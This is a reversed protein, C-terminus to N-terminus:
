SNSAGRGEDAGHLGAAAGELRAALRRARASTRLSEEYLAGIELCIRDWDNPLLLSRIADVGLHKTRGGVCAMALGRRSNLFALLYYATERYHSRAVIFTSAPIIEVNNQLMKQISPPQGEELYMFARPNSGTRPILIDGEMLPPMSVGVNRSVMRLHDTSCIVGDCFDSPGVLARAGDKPVRDRESVRSLNLGIHLDLHDGLCDGDGKFVGLNKIASRDLRGGAEILDANALVELQESTATGGTVATSFASFTIEDNKKSFVLIAGAVNSDKFCGLPLYIVRQIAGMKLLNIRENALSSASLAGMPVVVAAMGGDVCCHYVWRGISCASLEERERGTRRLCDDPFNLPEPRFSSLFNYAIPDIKRGPRKSILSIVPVVSPEKWERTVFHKCDGNAVRERRDLKRPELLKELADLFREKLFIGQIKDSNSVYSM